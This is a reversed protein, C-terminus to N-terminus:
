GLIHEAYLKLESAAKDITDYPGNLDADEDSFWWEDTNRNYFIHNYKGGIEVHGSTYDHAQVDALFVRQQSNRRKITPTYAFPMWTRTPYDCSNLPKKKMLELLKMKLTMM